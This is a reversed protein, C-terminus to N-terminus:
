PFLDIPEFRDDVLRACTAMSSNDSAAVTSHCRSKQVIPRNIEGIFRDRLPVISPRSRGILQQLLM